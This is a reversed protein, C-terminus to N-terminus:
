SIEIPACHTAQSITTTGTPPLVVLELELTTAVLLTTALETTIGTLPPLKPVTLGVPDADKVLEIVPLSLPFPVTAELVGAELVGAGLEAVRRTELPLEITERVAKDAVAVVPPTAM